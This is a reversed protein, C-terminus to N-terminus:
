VGHRLFIQRQGQPTSSNAGPEPERLEYNAEVYVRAGKPLTSLFKIGSENFCLIKHFTLVPPPRVAHRLILLYYILSFVSLNTKTVEM